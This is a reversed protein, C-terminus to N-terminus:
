QSFWSPLYDRVTEQYMNKEIAKVFKVASLPNSTSIKIDGSATELTVTTGKGAQTLSVGNVIRYNIEEFRDFMPKKDVLLVRKNSALLVGRGKLNQLNHNYKGFIVGEVVEEKDLLSDIYKVEPLLLYYGSIGLDSMVSVIDRNSSNLTM